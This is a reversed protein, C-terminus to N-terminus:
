SRESDNKGRVCFPEYNGPWFLPIDPDDTFGPLRIRDAANLLTYLFEKGRICGLSGSSASVEDFKKVKDVRVTSGHIMIPVPEGSHILNGSSATSHDAAVVLIVGKDKLLPTAANKIASDIQEIVKQKLLPDGKHAAEDPMKTHVHIFDYNKLEKVATRIRETYDAEVNGTDKCKIFDMGTYRSIGEYVRGSAIVLGKMGNLEHFSKISRKAGARQTVICNLPALGWRIRDINIKHSCLETYSRRIYQNLKESSASARRSDPASTLPKVEILPRGARIPDSDSISPSGKMVLIGDQKATQIIRLDGKRSCSSNMFEFLESCESNEAEPRGQHLYLIGDDEKVSWLHCLLAIENEAFEIGSGLAELYGRGPYDDRDYGFMILHAIESPMPEGFFTTHYLGCASKVAISDLAPTKAAELPTRNKLVPHSRDGLGDLLLVVCKM